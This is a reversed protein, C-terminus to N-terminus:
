RFSFSTSSIEAEDGLLLEQDLRRFQRLDGIEGHVGLAVPEVRVIGVVVPFPLFRELGVAELLAEFDQRSSRLSAREEQSGDHRRVETKRLEAACTQETNTTENVASRYRRWPEPETKAPSRCWAM